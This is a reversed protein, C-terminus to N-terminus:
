VPVCHEQCVQDAWSTRVPLLTVVVVFIVGSDLGSDRRWLEYHDITVIKALSCSLQPDVVANSIGAVQRAFLATAIYLIARLSLRFGFLSFFFFFFFGISSIVLVIVLVLSLSFPVELLQM